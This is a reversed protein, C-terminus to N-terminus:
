PLKSNIEDYEPKKTRILLKFSAELMEIATGYSM